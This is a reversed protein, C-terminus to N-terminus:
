LAHLSNAEGFNLNKSQISRYIRGSAYIAAGCAGVFFGVPYNTWYSLAISVWVTILALSVSIMIAVPVKSTFSRAAAAPSILLTFILVTGIVPVAMTTTLALILLFMLDVFALKVGKAQAAEPVVSTYILQRYLFLVAILCFLSVVFTPLIESRSIGFVEGFLLSYIQQAYGSSFSLFLSGLSLMLVMVLATAVDSRTRRSLGAIALAGALSFVSLGIVASVGLYSAAAAGAFAGNPLAHAAFANARQVVFFGVVGSVVAVISSIEWANLMFASFM